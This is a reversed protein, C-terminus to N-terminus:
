HRAKMITGIGMTIVHKPVERAHDFYRSNDEITSQTLIKVWTRSSLSGMPENFGIHGNSGIGLVQLDIGGAVKILEEYDLCTQQLNDSMGDPVHARDSPLDIAAFLNEQMYRHYSQPHSHPLGVYEDLNFSVCNSFSIRGAKYLSILEQYLKLPTGGTALGLVSSPKERLQRAVIKAAIKACDEPNDRIIIEM